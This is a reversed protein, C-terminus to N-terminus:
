NQKGGFTQTVGTGAEERRFIERQQLHGMLYAQVTIHQAHTYTHICVYANTFNQTINIWDQQRCLHPWM